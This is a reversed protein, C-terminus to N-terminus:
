GYLSRGDRGRVALELPFPVALTERAVFAILRKAALAKVHKAVLRITLQMIVPELSNLLCIARFTEVRSLTASM